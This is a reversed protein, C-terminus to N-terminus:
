GDRRGEQLAATLAARAEARFAGRLKDGVNEWRSGTHVGGVEALRRDFLGIAGREVMADTVKVAPQPAPQPGDYLPAWGDGGPREAQWKVVTADSGTPYGNADRIAGTRSWAVIRPKCEPDGTNAPQPAAYLPRSFSAAQKAGGMGYDAILVLKREDSIAEGTEPSAWHTPQQQSLAREIRNRFDILHGLYTKFGGISADHLSNQAILTDIDALVDAATEPKDNM